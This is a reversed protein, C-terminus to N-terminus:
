VGNTEGPVETPVSANPDRTMGARRKLMELKTPDKTIEHVKSAAKQLVGPTIKFAKFIENSYIHTAQVLEPTGVQAIGSKSVFDLAKLMLTMGAPVMAKPPMTGRSTHAMLLCIKVAGVACDSIPNKSQHLSALIGNPGKALAAHMGAVVIKLYDGRNQPTLQSEIKQEAAELIKNSLLIAM